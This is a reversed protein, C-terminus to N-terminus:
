EEGKNPIRRGEDYEKIGKWNRAWLELSQEKLHDQSLVARLHELEALRGNMRQRFRERDKEPIKSVQERKVRRVEAMRAKLYIKIDKKEMLKDLIATNSRGRTTSCGNRLLSRVIKASTSINTPVPINGM